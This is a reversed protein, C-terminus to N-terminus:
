ALSKFPIGWRELFAIRGMDFRGGDRKDEGLRRGIALIAVVRIQSPIGLVAKVKNEFFGEMPATDYGIAEAMLMMYTVAIMVHRNVWVGLNPKLGGANGPKGGLFGRVNKRMAEHQKADGAGNAESLRIVEDLDGKKWAQPDGCAVIVASAEAVKPQKMVAAQLRKKQAPEQVIVFRWPQLNYGSPAQRGAEVIRALDAGPLAEKKFHPTARREGIIRSLKKEATIDPRDPAKAQRM